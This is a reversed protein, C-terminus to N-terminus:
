DNNRVHSIRNEYAEEHHLPKNKVSNYIALPREMLSISRSRLCVNMPGDTKQAESTAAKQPAALGPGTGRLQLINSLKWNRVWVFSYFRTPMLTKPKLWKGGIPTDLGKAECPSLKAFAGTLMGLKPCGEDGSSSKGIASRTTRNVPRATSRGSKPNLVSDGSCNFTATSWIILM